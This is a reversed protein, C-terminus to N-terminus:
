AARRALTASGDSRPLRSSPSARTVNPPLVGDRYEQSLHEFIDWSPMCVVRLRIGEAILKEHADVALSVESGSAILIIEPAGGPAAALVYARALGM